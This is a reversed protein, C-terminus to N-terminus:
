YIFTELSFWNFVDMNINDSWLRRDATQSKVHM